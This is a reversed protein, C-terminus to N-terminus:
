ESEGKVEMEVKGGEEGKSMKIDDAIKEEPRPLVEISVEGTMKAESANSVAAGIGGSGGTGTLLGNVSKFVLFAGFMSVLIVLFLVLYIAREPIDINLEGKKEKKMM